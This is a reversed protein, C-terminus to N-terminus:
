YNSMDVAAAAMSIPQNLCMSSNLGPWSYNHNETFFDTEQQLLLDHVSSYHYNNNNAFSIIQHLSNLRHSLEAKQARLISNESEVILYHHTTLSIRSIFENKEKQLQTVQVTLDDLQKQRRMRSRRASERNSIMRKRKKQDMILKQHLDEDSTGSNQIMLSSRSSTGDCSSAM